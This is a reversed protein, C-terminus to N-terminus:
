AKTQNKIAEFFSNKNEPSLIAYAVYNGFVRVEADRLKPTEHPIYSDYWARNDALAQNLYNRLLSQMETTHGSAVHFVGVEDLKNRDTHFYVCCDRVFDPTEFYDRLADEGAGLYEGAADFHDIAQTALIQSTQTDGYASRRCCALSLLMLISLLFAFFQKM